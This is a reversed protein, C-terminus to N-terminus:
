ENISLFNDVAEVSDIDELIDVAPIGVARSDEVVPSHHDEEGMAPNHALFSRQLGVRLTHAAPGTCGSSGVVGVVAKHLGKVYDMDEAVLIDEVRAAMHAEEEYGSDVAALTGVKGVAVKRVVVGALGVGVVVTYYALGVMHDLEAAVDLFNHREVVLMAKRVVALGVRCRSELQALEM